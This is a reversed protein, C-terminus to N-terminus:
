KRRLERSDFKVSVAAHVTYTLSLFQNEYRPTVLIVALIQSERRFHPRSYYEKLSTFYIKWLGEASGCVSVKNSFTFKLDWISSRGLIPSYQFMDPTGTNFSFTISVNKLVHQHSGSAFISSCWFPKTNDLVRTGTDPVQVISKGGQQSRAHPPFLENVFVSMLWDASHANAEANVSMVSAKHM